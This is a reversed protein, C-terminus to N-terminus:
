LSYDGAELMLTTTSSESKMLFVNM